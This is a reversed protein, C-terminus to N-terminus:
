LLFRNYVATVRALVLRARIPVSSVTLLIILFLDASFLFVLRLSLSVSFIYCCNIQLVQLLYTKEIVLGPSRLLVMYRMLVSIYLLFNQWTMFIFIIRHWLLFSCFIDTLVQSGCTSNKKKVRFAM